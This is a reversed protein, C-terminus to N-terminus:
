WKVTIVSSSAKVADGNCTDVVKLQFQYQGTM